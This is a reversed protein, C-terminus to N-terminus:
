INSLKGFAGELSLYLDKYVQYYRDYFAKSSGDPEYSAKTRYVRKSADHVSPYIGAGTGGLLAAGLSSAE